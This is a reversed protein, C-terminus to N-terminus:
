CVRQKQLKKVPTVTITKRWESPRDVFAAITKTTMPPVTTSDHNLVPQHKANTEVAANKTQMTLHPFHILGHTTDIVLRNHRMFHLGLNFATLNKVVFREAFTNDGIDFKLTATAKPKGLQGM